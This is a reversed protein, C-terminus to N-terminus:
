QNSTFGNRAKIDPKYFECDAAYNSAVSKKLFKCFIPNGDIERQFRSSVAHYRCLYCNKIKAGELFAQEVEEIFTIDSLDSM